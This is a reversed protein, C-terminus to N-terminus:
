PHPPMGSALLAACALVALLFFTELIMIRRLWPVAKEGQSRAFRYGTLTLMRELTGPKLSEAADNRWPRLVPLVIFRNAAGLFIMGLVLLVKISLTIGYGTEWLDGLHHLQVISNYLGTLLVGIMSITALRSLRHSIEAIFTRHSANQPILLPRLGIAVAILCGGWLSATLVHLWYVWEPWTFDGWDAGHGSASYTWALLAAAAAAFMVGVSWGKGGPGTWAWGIWLLMLALIRVIWISGYHTRRLILPVVSLAETLEVGSMQVSRSLLILFSTLTLLALASGLLFHLRRWARETLPSAARPARPLVWLLCGIVGTAIAFFLIDLAVLAKYSAM